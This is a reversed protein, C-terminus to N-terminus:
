RIAIADIPHYAGFLDLIRLAPSLSRDGLLDTAEPTEFRKSYIPADAAQGYDIEVRANFYETARIEMILRATQIDFGNQAVVSDPENRDAGSLINGEADTKWERELVLTYRPRAFGSLTLAFRRDKTAIFFGDRDYGAPPNADAESVKKKLAETEASLTELATKVKELDKATADARDKEIAKEAKLSSIEAQLAELTASAADIRARIDSGSAGGTLDDLASRLEQVAAEIQKQKAGAYQAWGTSSSLVVWLMAAGRFLLMGMKDIKM